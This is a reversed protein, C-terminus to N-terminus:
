LLNNDMSQQAGYPLYGSTVKLCFIIHLIFLTSIFILVITGNTIADREFNQENPTFCNRYAMFHNFDAISAIEKAGFKLVVRSILAHVGLNIPFFTKNAPKAVALTIKSNGHLRGKNELVFRCMADTHVVPDLVATTVGISQNTPIEGINQMIDPKALSM